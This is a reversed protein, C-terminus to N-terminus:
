TTLGQRLLGFHTLLCIFCFLIKRNGLGIHIGEVHYMDLFTLESLAFSDICEILFHVHFVCLTCSLVMRGTGIFILRQAALFALICFIFNIRPCFWLSLLTLYGNYFATLM